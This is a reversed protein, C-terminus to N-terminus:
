AAAEADRQSQTEDDDDADLGLAEINGDDEDAEPARVKGAGASEPLGEEDSAVTQPSGTRNALRPGLM